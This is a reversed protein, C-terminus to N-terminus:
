PEPLLFLFVHHEFKRKAGEETYVFGYSAPAADSSNLRVSGSSAPAADSSNLRMSSEPAFCPKCEAIATSSQSRMLVWMSAMGGLYATLISLMVCASFLFRPQTEPASAETLLGKKETVADAGFTKNGVVVANLECDGDECDAETSNNPDSASAM